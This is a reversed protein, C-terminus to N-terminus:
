LTALVGVLAAIEDIKLRPAAEPLPSPQRYLGGPRRVQVTAMGLRNPAIFDKTENDAIYATEEPRAQLRQLLVEFGRPSPKWFERGLEETYVIAQFDHEIGLAQVKLRQTPLFGDTLLGLTYRSKLDDLVARSEPPLTLTPLHTRYIEVLAGILHDDYPIGLETLAANFTSGCDGTIFCQWLVASVAEADPADSLNSIHRAAARFGSRCFDLEDYLTDDLDFIVTTIM